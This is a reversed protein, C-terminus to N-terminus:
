REGRVGARLDSLRARDAQHKRPPHPEGVVWRGDLREMRLTVAGRDRAHALWRARVTARDEGRWRVGSVTLLVGMRGTRRDTVFGGARKARSAKLVQFAAGGAGVKDAAAEDGPSEEPLEALFRAMFAPRPDRDQGKSRVSLFFLPPAARGGRGFDAIVSRFAVELLDEELRRRKARSTM